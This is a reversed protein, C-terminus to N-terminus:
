HFFDFQKDDSEIESQSIEDKIMPEINHSCGNLCLMAFLGIILLQKKM